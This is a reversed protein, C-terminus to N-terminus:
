IIKHFFSELISYVKDIFKGASDAVVRHLKLVQGTQRFDPRGERTWEVTM